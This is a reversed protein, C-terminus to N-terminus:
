KGAIPPSVTEYGRDSPLNPGAAAQTALQDCRENGPNGAHGKVWVFTVDHRECLLLLREWLDINLAKDGNSKRWENRRWKKAWGKKIGDVVYRSDSYIAVVSPSELQELGVICALLEMRNNTTNRFGGSIERDKAPSPIVVGYGGPGPNGLSSGDTYIVMRGELSVAPASVRRSTSRKSKKQACGASKKEDSQRERIFARAEEITPFGKYRAGQFGKVQAQAGTDGFWQTYIGPNRGVAVAYYKKGAM